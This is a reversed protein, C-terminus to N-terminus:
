WRTVGELLTWDVRGSQYGSVVWRDEDWVFTITEDFTQDVIRENGERTLLIVSDAVKMKLTATGKYVSFQGFSLVRPTSSLIYVGANQQAGVANIFWFESYERMLNNNSYFGSLPKSFEDWYESNVEYESYYAERSMNRVEEPLVLLKASETVFKEATARLQPELKKDIQSQVVLYTLVGILVVLFLVLGRNIRKLGKKM